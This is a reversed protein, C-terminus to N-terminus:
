KHPKLFWKNLLHITMNVDLTVQDLELRTINNAHRELLDDLSLQIKDVSVGAIKAVIDFTGGGSSFSINFYTKKRSIVPVESDVIVGAKALKSYSFKVPKDKSKGPQSFQALCSHLYDNFQQTQDNLYKQHKKLNRLALTLRKIEKRQQERISQRNAVELAVARLFGAHDEDKNDLKKLNELVKNINNTLAANDKEKAFQKAYSLFDSCSVKQGPVSPQSPVIKMIGVMLEKTEAHLADNATNIDDEMVQKFRNILTLQIEREDEASAEPPAGLDKLIMALPDSADKVLQDHHQHLLKHTHIIEKLSIIILPKTKQTLEVYKDVQLFDEPDAVEALEKFFRRIVPFATSLWENAPLMSRETKTYLNLVFLNQFVKGIVVLNKMVNMPQNRECLQFMDPSIIALSIFRYGIFYGLVKFLEDSPANPFQEKAVNYIQKCLYRIGYPIKTVAKVISELLSQCINQLQTSRNKIITKVEELELIKEEPLSRDMNSKMGTSIEVENIMTHYVATPNLELSPIDSRIISAIPEKLLAQLYEVGQKRRSYSVMIKQLVSESSLFDSPSKARQMEHAISQRLLSLILFEERPSFADGYLAVLLTDLFTEVDEQTMLGVLKALYRPETQLLYFLNQYHEMKKQDQLIASKQQVHKQAKKSEKVIEQINSRHKILLSIRKDLKVLDRELMHNRRVETILNRKLEQLDNVWNDSEEEEEKYNKLLEQIEFVSLDGRRVRDEKARMELMERIMVRAKLVLLLCDREPGWPDNETLKPALAKM